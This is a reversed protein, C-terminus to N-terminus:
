SISHSCTARSTVLSGKPHVFTKLRKAESRSENSSQNNVVKVVLALTARPVHMAGCRDCAIRSNCQDGLLGVIM